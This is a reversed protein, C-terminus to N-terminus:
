PRVSRMTWPAGHHLKVPTRNPQAGSRGYMGRVREMVRERGRSGDHAHRLGLGHGSMGHRRGWGVGHCAHRPEFAGKICWQTDLQQRQSATLRATRVSTGTACVAGQRTSALRCDDVM